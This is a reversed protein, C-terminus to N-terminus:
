IEETLDFDDTLSTESKGKDSFIFTNSNGNIVGYFVDGDKNFITAVGGNKTLYKRGVELKLPIQKTVFYKESCLIPSGISIPQQNHYRVIFGDVLKFSYGSDEMFIEAGNKLENIVDEVSDVHVNETKNSNKIELAKPTFLDQQKTKIHKDYFDKLKAEIYKKMLRKRPKKNVYAAYTHPNIGIKQAMQVQSMKHTTQYMWFDVPKM